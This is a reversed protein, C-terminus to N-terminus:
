ELPNLEDKGFGIVKSLDLHILPFLDLSHMYQDFSINLCVMWYEYFVRNMKSAWYEVLTRNLHRRIKRNFYRSAQVQDKASIAPDNYSNMLRNYEIFDFFSKGDKSEAEFEKFLAEYRDKIGSESFPLSFCSRFLPQKKLFFGRLINAYLREAGVLQGQQLAEFDSEFSTEPNTGNTLFSYLDSFKEPLFNHTAELQDALASFFIPVSSDKKKLFVSIAKGISRGRLLIKIIYNYDLPSVGNGKFLLTSLKDAIPQPLRSLDLYEYLSANKHLLDMLKQCLLSNKQRLFEDINPDRLLLFLVDRNAIEDTAYVRSIAEL